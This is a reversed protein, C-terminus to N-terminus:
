LEQPALAVVVAPPRRLVNVFFAACATGALVGGLVDSPWHAGLYVRAVAAVVIFASALTLAAARWRASRMTWTLLFVGLGFVLVALMADGSPYSLGGAATLRPSVGYPRARHVDYKLLADLLQGTVCAVVYYIACRAGSRRYLAAAFLVVAPVALRGSTFTVARLLTTLAPSALDRLSLILQHDAVSTRDALVLATLTAFLSATAAGVYAARRGHRSPEVLRPYQM